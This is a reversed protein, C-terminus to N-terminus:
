APSAFFSPRPTWDALAVSKIQLWVRQGPSLQLQHVSRSTLRALLPTAGALLRVLSTGPTVDSVVQDVTAPLLNQISQDRNEHLAISIDRALVQVRVVMGTTLH